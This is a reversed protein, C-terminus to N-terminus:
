PGAGEADNQTFFGPDTQPLEIVTATVAPLGEGVSDGVGDAVGVDDAVDDGPGVRVGVEEGVDDGSGVRVSVGVGVADAVDDDSGM